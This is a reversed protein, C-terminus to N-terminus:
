ETGSGGGRDVHEMDRSPRIHEHAFNEPGRDGSTHTTYIGPTGPESNTGNSDHRTEARAISGHDTGLLEQGSPGATKCAGNQVRYLQKPLLTEGMPGDQRDVNGTPMTHLPQIRRRRAAPGHKGPVSKAHRERELNDSHCAQGAREDGLGM